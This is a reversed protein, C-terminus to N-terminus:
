PGWEPSFPVLSAVPIVTMLLWIQDSKRKLSMELKTYKLSIKGLSCTMSHARVCLQLWSWSLLCCSCNLEIIGEEPHHGGLKMPDWPVFVTLVCMVTVNKPIKLFIFLYLHQGDYRWLDYCRRKGKHGQELWVILCSLFILNTKLPICELVSHYKTVM